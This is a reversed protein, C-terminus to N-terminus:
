RSDALRTSFTLPNNRRKCLIVMPVGRTSTSPAQNRSAGTKTRAEKYASGGNNGCRLTGATPRSFKGDCQRTGQQAVDKDAVAIM